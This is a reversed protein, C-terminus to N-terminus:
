SSSALWSSTSPAFGGSSMTALSSPAACTLLASAVRSRLLVIFTDKDGDHILCFRKEKELTSRVERLCNRSKFYGKSVFFQVVQSGGIYEELAGTDQLDDVDLFVRVGPLVLCLQRKITACQDQATGWIHSLFLHWKNGADLDLLPPAETEVLHMIPPARALESASMFAFAVICQLIVLVMFTTMQEEQFYLFERVDLSTAGLDDSVAALKLMLCGGLVCLTGFHCVLALVNDEPLRYPSAIGQFFLFGAQVFMAVFLQRASGQAFLVLFGALSTKRLIEVIEWWFFRESYDESLFSLAHALLTRKKDRIAHREKFLLIAFTGPLALAYIAVTLWGLRRIAGYEADDSDCPVRYDAVLLEVPEGVDEGFVECSFSRFAERNAQPSALFLLLLAWPMANLLGAVARAPVSLVVGSSNRSSSGADSKVPKLGRSVSAVILLVLLVLPTFCYFALYRRFGGLGLCHAPAVISLKFTIADFAGIVREVTEPLHLQYVVNLSSLIQLTSTMVKLRARLQLRLQLSRKLSRLMRLARPPARRAVLLAVLMLAVLVVLLAVTGSFPREACEVCKQRGEDFYFSSQSANTTSNAGNSSCLQCYPGTLGPACPDGTGGTCADEFECRRLDTSSNSWRWHGFALPLTALTLGNATCESGTTPCAECLVDGGNTQDFFGLACTCDQLRTAAADSGSATPCRQCESESRSGTSPNFTSAPCPKALQDECYYGVPCEACGGALGDELGVAYTGPGCPPPPSPTPSPPPSPPPPPPSPPPPSPPPPTFPPTPSSPSARPSGSFVLAGPIYWQDGKRDAVIVDMVGNGDLDVCDLGPVGLFHDGDNDFSLGAFPNSANDITPTSGSLRYMQISTVGNNEGIVLIEPQLDGDVDCTVASQERERTPDSPLYDSSALTWTVGSSSAGDNRFFYVPTPDAWWVGSGVLCDIDGDGDADWCHPAASLFNSVGFFDSSSLTWADSGDRTYLLVKGNRTGVVCQDASGYFGGAVCDLVVSTGSTEAQPLAGFVDDKVIAGSTRNIAIVIQNVTDGVFCVSDGTM